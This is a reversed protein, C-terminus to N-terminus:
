DTASVHPTNDMKADQASQLTSSDAEWVRKMSFSGHSGQAAALM